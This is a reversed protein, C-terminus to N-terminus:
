FLLVSTRCHVEFSSSNVQLSNTVVFCFHHSIIKFKLISNKCVSTSRFSYYQSFFVCELSVSIVTIEFYDINMCHYVSGSVIEM